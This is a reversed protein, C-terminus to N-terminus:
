KNFPVEFIVENFRISRKTKAKSLLDNKSNSKKRVCEMRRM